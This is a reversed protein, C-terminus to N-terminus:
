ELKLLQNQGTLSSVIAIVYLPLAITYLLSVSNLLQTHIRTHTHTHTQLCVTFSLIFIEYKLMSTAILIIYSLKEFPFDIFFFVHLKETDLHQSPSYKPEQSNYSM